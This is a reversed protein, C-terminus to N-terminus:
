RRRFEAGPRWQPLPGGQALRWGVAFGFEAHEAAGVMDWDARVTDSVQHYDKAVYAGVTQQRHDAPKGIFDYGTRIHAVPVGARAFEFADVRYYSLAEPTRDAVVRLGRLAAALHLADDIESDGLGPVQFDETRGWVNLIDLNLAAVTRALPFFPHAVYHKAGLLGSEEATTAIFLVTRPPAQPLAAFVRAIELIAATGSANDLAGHYIGGAAAAGLHDWHATYIVVDGKLRPDRGEVRAVVNRSTFTRLTSRVDFDVAAGLRVPAFDRRQAAAHLAEFDHGARAFLERVREVPVVLEVQLEQQAAPMLVPRETGVQSAFASFPVGGARQLEHVAISAVAGRELAMRRRHDRTTYYTRRDPRFAPEGLLYVVTKGRVDAQKYDDWGYEPAVIGHGVFVLESAGVAVHERPQASGGAFDRRPEWDIRGGGVAISATVTSRIGTIPVEQVYTGDPNGPALGYRRFTDALYAVTLEEGETGPRRGGFRGSALTEIHALLAAPDIRVAPAPAPGGPVASCAVLLAACIAAVVRKM